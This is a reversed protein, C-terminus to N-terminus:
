TPLDGVSCFQVSILLFFSCCVLRRAFGYSRSVCVFEPLVIIDTPFRHKSTVALAFQHEKSGQARATEREREAFM